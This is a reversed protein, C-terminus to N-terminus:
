ISIKKVNVTGRRITFQESVEEEIFSNALNNGRSEEVRGCSGCLVWPSIEKVLNCESRCLACYRSSPQKRPWYIRGGQSEGTALQRM